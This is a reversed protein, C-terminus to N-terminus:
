KSMEEAEGVFRVTLEGGDGAGAAETGNLERLERLAGTMAKFDRSDLEKDGDITKEIRRLLKSTVQALRIGLDDELYEARQGPWNEATGRRQITSYPADFDRALERYSKGEKVFGARIKEWDAM